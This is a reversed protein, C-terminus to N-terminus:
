LLLDPTLPSYRSKVSKRHSKPFRDGKQAETEGGTSHPEIDRRDAEPTPDTVNESRLGIGVLDLSLFPAETCRMGPFSQEPATRKQTRKLTSWISKGPSALPILSHLTVGHLAAATFGAAGDEQTRIELGLQSSSTNIQREWPGM